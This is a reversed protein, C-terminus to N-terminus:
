IPGDIYANIQHMEFYASRGSTNTNDLTIGGGERHIFLHDNAVLPLDITFPIQSGIQVNYATSGSSTLHLFDSQPTDSDFWVNITYVGSQHIIFEDDVSDYTLGAQAYILEFALNSSCITQNILSAASIYQGFSPGAIGTAGTAGTGGTAGTSGTSGTPGQSGTPGRPGKKTLPFHHAKKCADHRTAAKDSENRMETTEQKVDAQSGHIFPSSFSSQLILFLSFLSSKKKM